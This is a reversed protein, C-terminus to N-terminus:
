RWMRLSNGGLEPDDYGGIGIELINLRKRRLSAFHTEYHPAYWHQRWKDSGYLTALAKLNSGFVGQYLLHQSRRFRLSQFKHIRIRQTEDLSTKLYDRINVLASM